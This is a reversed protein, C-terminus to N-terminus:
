AGDLDELLGILTALRRSDDEDQEVHLLRGDKELLGDSGGAFGARPTLAVAAPGADVRAIGASRCLLRARAVALLTRAADPLAGFRDELEAEFGVLEDGDTLRALRMYLPLRVDVAPIWDESLRGAINLKLEPRWDDVPEGRANRLALELLHQYLDVGILKVHGAQEDGLLDGAGRVDLDRASIAFGAGLRDFTELTKLRKLTRAAIPTEPDTLLLVQGRRGGRGVRGRLQHLQSLGFCDARWVIMTNARPVDLGAEIINTALLVDGDGRAFVVMAEDIDAAPLKGHAERLTLEPVLRALRERMAAMDEIRPVVIFSQGRRSKERLLAARVQADDFSGSVTRIPQRRAPPTAIVSMQQLGILASQLTRPIPTATLTLMHCAECLGRLRAKEAAGFRQEEDVVVLALDHYAVGKGAVAATGIVIDISGDALGAITAKREVPTTLRSLGAVAVGTGKFRSRFTELHQRVLVTTPAAIAVQKGALAALAAARLAVETKGYGVDGIVLRDAPKGSALDTRVAAIARAQDATETFGFGAAFREYAAADPEIVPATLQAREAALAALRRATEAIAADIKARREHWSSGDLKDLTVADAEAGYRWVRDLDAVPVQRRGDAAFGLVLADGDGSGAIAELGKVVAVGFAEHIVVDGVQIETGVVPLGNPAAVNDHLLARGGLVDAAALVFAGEDRWGRDAAIELTAIGEGSLAEAWDAAARLSQQLERALRSGVFRLDRASGLLVVRQGAALADRVARVLTRLPARGEIFRTMPQTEGWDADITDRGTMAATWGAADTVGGGREAPDRALDAALAVFRDRRSAADADLMVAAGPLHDFLTVPQPGLAPEAIRGVSLRDLTGTGLQTLPDYPRIAAIHGDAVEVRVPRGSDAPYLDVVQGAAAFSGPEEVQQDEVYGLERLTAALTAVEAPQDVTFEPPAGAFAEPPPYLRIAAEATTILATHRGGRGQLAQLAAVRRGVNGPSALVVDGPLADSSPCHVILANPAAVMLAAAVAEARSEDAAVYLADGCALEEVLRAALLGAPAPLSIAM